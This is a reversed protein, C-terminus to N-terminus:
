RGEILSRAFSIPRVLGLNGGVSNCDAGDCAVRNGTVATAIGVLNGKDDVMPGGSNGPNITVEVKYFVESQSDTYGAITGKTLTVTFGGVGPYGIVRIDSGLVLDGYKPILVPYQGPKVGIIRITALDSVEDAKLLEADYFVDPEKSAVSTIGIAIQDCEPSEPDINAVHANTLVRTGDGIFVGSGTWCVYRGDTVEIYVVATIPDSSANAAVASSSDETPITTGTTDASAVASETKLPAPGSTGGGFFLLAMTAVLLTSAIALKPINFSRVGANTKNIILLSGVIVATISLILTVYIPFQFHVNAADEYNNPLLLKIFSSGAWLLVVQLLKIISLLILAVGAIRSLVAIDSTLLVVALLVTAWTLVGIVFNGFLSDGSIEIRGNMKTSTAALWVMQNVIALGFACVLLAARLPEVRRRNMKTHPELGTILEVGLFMGITLALVLGPGQGLLGKSLNIGALAFGPLIGRILGLGLMGTGALWGLLAAGSASLYIGVNRLPSRLLIGLFLFVTAIGIIVRGGLMESLTVTKNELGPLRVHAWPIFATLVLAISALIQPLMEMLTNASKATPGLAKVKSEPTGVSGSTASEYSGFESM